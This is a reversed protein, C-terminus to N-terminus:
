RLLIVKRTRADEDFTLRVFYVGPSSLNGQDNTGDWMVSHESAEQYGDVLAAVRRGQVDHVTLYVWGGTPISYSVRIQTGANGHCILDLGHVEPANGEPVASLDVTGRLRICLDCTGCGPATTIDTWDSGDSSVFCHEPSTVGYPDLAIPYIYSANTFRVVVFIDDGSNVMFPTPLEVSHYGMEGFSNNIDSSLLNSVTGGSFEDYMYIDVDTTADTTWFEVRRVVMNETPVFRCMGWAVIDGFGMASGMFGGEDHCLVIGNADYGQWDYVTSTYEGINASGYAITFYGHETGYGCTGGWSTGYSNKVIWAGQGGAHSLTDDWGVILVAHDVNGPGDYYLTYSGDYHWFESPWGSGQTANMATFLPGSSFLYAKLVEPDPIEAASIASWGLLTLVYPCDDRCPVNSPVYPDCVELVSGKQSLFSAVMNYNGGNCSGFGVETAWWDCEKVNNESLDYEEGGAVLVSSELNALSAFAYCSGCNGQDKVPTVKGLERWDFRMPLPEPFQRPEAQYGDFGYGPSIPRFGARQQESVHVPEPAIITSIEGGVSNLVIPPSPEVASADGTGDRAPPATGVSALTASLVVVPVISPLLLL